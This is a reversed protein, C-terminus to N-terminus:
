LEIWIEEDSTKGHCSDSGDATDKEGDCQGEGDEGSPEAVAWKVNEDRYTTHCSFLRQKTMEVRIELQRYKGCNEPQRV